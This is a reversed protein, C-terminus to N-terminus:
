DEDRYRAFWALINDVKAILHSPRAAIGHSAEPVRVLATDIKRLKLAQYFQESEAIPTRFDQEGTLLMTPTTVNGVLSLPSRA